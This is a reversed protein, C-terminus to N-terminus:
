DLKDMLMRKQIRTSIRDLLGRFFPRLIPISNVLDALWPGLHGYLQIFKIGAWTSLLVNDRYARFILVQPMTDSGYTATAIFCDSKKQNKSYSNTRGSSRRQTGQRNRQENVRRAREAEQCAKCWFVRNQAKLNNLHTISVREEGNCKPSIRSGCQVMRYNKQENCARCVYPENQAALKNLYEVPVAVRGFCKPSLHLSCEVERTTELRRMKELAVCSSCKFPRGKSRLREHVQRSIEHDTSCSDCKVIVTEGERQWPKNPFMDESREGQKMARIAMNLHGIFDKIAVREGRSFVAFFDSKIAPHLQSWIFQWAGVPPREETERDYAFSRNRINEAAEGGGQSSYPAKGIFLIMFLLTTVAFLEDKESRLFDSYNLGQREPPTFTETGVPCPFEEVQFSDSDVIAISHEDKVLINQPNIDGIFVNLRHLKGIATLITIALQTLQIRNWHPFTKKLLPKAFVATKLIKGDVKPMLYGVFQGHENTVIDKPWCVEPIRIDRSVMLELKKRRSETIREEHYIKCVLSDTDTRYIKGEGGEALEEILLVPKKMSDLVMGGTAPLQKISIPNNNLGCVQKALKFPDVRHKERHAKIKSDQPQTKHQVTGNKRNPTSQQQKNTTTKQPNTKFKSPNGKQFSVKKESKPKYGRLKAEWNVLLQGEQPIFTVLFEHGTGMKQNDILTIALNRDQTIFCMDHNSQFRIALKVFVPDAFTDGAGEVEHADEGIMLLGKKEYMMLVSLGENTAKILDQDTSLIHKQLEKIVRNPVILDNDHKSLGPLLIDRFFPVGILSGDRVSPLLISSTDAIIKFSEVISSIIVEDNKNQLPQLLRPIWNKLQGNDIYIAKVDKVFKFAESRSNKLIQLALTENQTILCIKFKTQYGIFLETFLASTDFPDGPITHPDRADLLRKADQLIHLIKLAETAGSGVAQDQANKLYELHDITRGSVLVAANNQHLLPLLKEIFVKNADPELLSATDIFIKYNKVLNNIDIRPNSDEKRLQFPESAPQNMFEDQKLPKVAPSGPVPPSPTVSSQPAVQESEALRLKQIHEWNKRALTLRADYDDIEVKPLDALFINLTLDNKFNWACQPCFPPVPDSVPLQCVPCNMKMSHREDNIKRIEL